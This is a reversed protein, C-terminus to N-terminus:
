SRRTFLVCPPSFFRFLFCFPCSLSIRFSVDPMFFFFSHWLSCTDSANVWSTNKEFGSTHAVRELYQDPSKYTSGEGSFHTQSYSNISTDTARLSRPGPHTGPLARVAELNGAQCCFLHIGRMMVTQLVSLEIVLVPGAGVAGRSEHKSAVPTSPSNRGPITDIFSWSIM